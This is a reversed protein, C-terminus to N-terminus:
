ISGLGSGRLRDLHHYHTPHVRYRSLVLGPMPILCWVHPKVPPHFWPRHGAANIDNRVAAATTFRASSATRMSPPAAMLMQYGTDRAPRPVSGFGRPVGGGISLAKSQLVSGRADHLHAPATAPQRPPAQQLDVGHTPLWRRGRIRIPRSRSFCFFFQHAKVM